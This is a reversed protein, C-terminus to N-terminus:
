KYPFYEAAIGPRNPYIALNNNFGAVPGSGFYDPFVADRQHFQDTAGTDFLQNCLAAATAGARRAMNVDCPRLAHCQCLHPRSFAM